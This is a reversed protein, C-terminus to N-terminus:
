QSSMLNRSRWLTKAADELGKISKSKASKWEPFAVATLLAAKRSCPSGTVKSFTKILFFVTHRAVAGPTLYKHRSYLKLDDRAHQVHFDFDKPISIPANPTSLGDMVLVFHKKVKSWNRGSQEIAWKNDKLWSGTRLAFVSGGIIGLIRNPALAPNIEWLTKLADRVLFTNGTNQDQWNQDVYCNAWQVWAARTRSSEPWREAIIAARLADEFSPSKKLM